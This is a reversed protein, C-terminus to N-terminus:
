DGAQSPHYNALTLIEDVLRSAADPRAVHGANAAM